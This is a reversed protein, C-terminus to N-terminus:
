KAFALDSSIERGQLAEIALRVRIGFNHIMVSFMLENLTGICPM